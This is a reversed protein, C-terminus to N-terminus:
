YLKSLMKKEDIIKNGVIFFHYCYRKMQKINLIRKIKTFQYNNLYRELLFKNYYYDVQKMEKFLQKGLLIIILLYTLNIKLVLAIVLSIFIFYSIYIITKLSNYYSLFKTFILHLLKGGDLPYIPLLNFGLIFFSYIYFYNPVDLKLCYVIITFIIQTLPGMIFVLFEKIFKTNIDYIM